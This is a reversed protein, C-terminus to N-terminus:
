WPVAAKGKCESFAEVTNSAAVDSTSARMFQTIGRVRKRCVVCQDDSRVARVAGEFCGGIELDSSFESLGRRRFM